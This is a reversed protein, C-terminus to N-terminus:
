GAVAAVAGHEPVRTLIDYTHVCLRGTTASGKMSVPTSLYTVKESLTKVKSELHDREAKLVM